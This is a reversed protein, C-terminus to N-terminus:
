LGAIELAKDVAVGSEVLNKVTVSQDTALPVRAPSLDWTVKSELAVSLQDAFIDALPQLYSDVWRGHEQRVSQGPAQESRLLVPVGIAEFAEDVLNKRLTVANQDPAFIYDTHPLPEARGRPGQNQLGYVGSKSHFTTQYGASMRDVDQASQESNSGSQFPLMRVYPFRSYELLGKEVNPLILLHDFPSQGTWPKDQTQGTMLHLVGDDPLTKGRTGDPHNIEVRYKYPRKKGRVEFSSARELIGAGEGQEIGYVANGTMLVDRIATALFDRTLAPQWYDSLTGELKVAGRSMTLSALNTASMIASAIERGTTVTRYQFDTVQDTYSRDEVDGFLRRFFGM